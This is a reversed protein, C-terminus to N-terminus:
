VSCQPLKKMPLRKPLLYALIVSTETILTDNETLLAPVQCFPNVVLLEKPNGWPLVFKLTLDINNLYATIMVLRAYPSTTSVFLKM